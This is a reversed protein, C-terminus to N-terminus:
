YKAMPKTVMKLDKQCYYFDSEKDACAQSERYGGEAEGGTLASDRCDNLFLIGSNQSRLESSESTPSTSSAM